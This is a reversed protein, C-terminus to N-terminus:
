KCLIPHPGRKPGEGSNWSPDRRPPQPQWRFAAPTTEGTWDSQSEWSFFPGIYLYLSAHDIQISGFIMVNVASLGISGIWGYVGPFVASKEINKWMKGFLVKWFTNVPYLHILNLDMFHEIIYLLSWKIINFDSIYTLTQIQVDRSIWTSNKKPSFQFVMPFYRM